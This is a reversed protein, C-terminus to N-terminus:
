EKKADEQLVKYAERCQDLTKFDKFGGIAMVQLILDNIIKLAQEKNM